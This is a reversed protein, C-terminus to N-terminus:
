WHQHLKIPPIERCYGAVVASEFILVERKGLNQWDLTAINLINSMAVQLKYM